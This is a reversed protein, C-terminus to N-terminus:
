PLWNKGTWLWLQHKNINLVHRQCNGTCTWQQTNGGVNTSATGCPSSLSSSLKWDRGKMGNTPKDM